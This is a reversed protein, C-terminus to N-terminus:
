ELYVGKEKKRARMGTRLFLESGGQVALPQGAVDLQGLRPLDISGDRAVLARLDLDVGSGWFRVKLVDDPGVVYEPGPLALRTTRGTQRSFLEYGFQRLSAAAASAYRARYAQEIVSPAPEPGLPDPEDQEGRDQEAKRGSKDLPREASTQRQIRPMTRDPKGRKTREAPQGSRSPATPQDPRTPDLPADLGDTSGSPLPAAFGTPPPAPATQATHATM